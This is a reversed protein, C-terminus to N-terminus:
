FFFSLSLSLSDDKMKSYDILDIHQSLIPMMTILSVKFFMSQRREFIFLRFVCPCNLKCRIEELLCAWINKCLQSFINPEDLYEWYQQTSWLPLTCMFNPAIFTVGGLMIKAEHLQIKYNGHIRFLTNPNLRGM